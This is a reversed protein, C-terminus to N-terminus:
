IQSLILSKEFVGLAPTYNKVLNQGQSTPRTTSTDVLESFKWATGTMSM